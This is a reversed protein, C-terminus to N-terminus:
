LRRRKRNKWCLISIVLITALSVLEALRWYWFGVYSISLNGSYGAPINVQVVAYEGTVLHHNSIKGDESTVRYGKYAHLPLLVYGDTDNNTVSFTINTGKQQYNEVTVGEFARPNFENSVLDYNSSSLIYDGDMAMITTNTNRLNDLHVPVQRNVCEQMYYMGSIGALMCFVVCIMSVMQKGERLSLLLLGFGTAIASLAIAPTLFRWIFELSSILIAAQPFTSSIRDWPFYVTSMWITMSALLWFVLGQKKRKSHEKGATWLMTICLILGLVLGLGLSLPMENTIGESADYTDWQYNHFLSMLQTLFTGTKQLMETSPARLTRIDQTLSFDVFPVLFWANVGLTFLVSKVLAWFRKRHLTRFLVMVCAVLIVGGTMEGTLVHTQIIGTLGLVLPLFCWRYEKKETDQTFIQYLGYAVFPLFLMATYEGVSARLYMDMLRYPALVYLFTATYPILKGGFMKQFCYYSGFCTLVNIMIAYINYTTTLSIGVLRLFAPIYLLIEGYLIPNAYGYGNYFDPNMRVPFQGSLWADKIGEIRALHYYFDHGNIAYDVFLPYSAIVSLALLGAFVYKSQVSVGYKKGYRVAYCIINAVVLFLVVSFLQINAAVPTEHITFDLISASGTGNYFFRLAVNLDANVWFDDTNEHVGEELYTVAQEIVNYYEVYSHPWCFSGVSNGDYKLTYTYYGKRLVMDPIADYMGGPYSEDITGGFCADYEESTYSKLQEQDFHYSILSTVQRYYSIGAILLIVAQAVFFLLLKEKKVWALVKEYATKWTDKTTM